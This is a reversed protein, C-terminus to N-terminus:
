AEHAARDFLAHTLKMLELGHVVLLKLNQSNPHSGGDCKNLESLVYNDTSIIAAAGNLKEFPNDEENQFREVRAADDERQVQIFRHKLAHLSMSLRVADKESDQIADQLRNRAKSHTFQAKAEFAILTDGRSFQKQNAFRFGIIDCGKASEDRTQKYNMKMRPVWYGLSFELYDAILIEAFDGARISPGPAATRHPFLFDNLYQAKTKGTGSILSRLDADNCYHNRIHRAWASMIAESNQHEIVLVNVLHGSTIRFEGVNKLWESIHRM